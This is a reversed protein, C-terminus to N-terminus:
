KSGYQYIVSKETPPIMSPVASALEGVFSYTSDSGDQEV